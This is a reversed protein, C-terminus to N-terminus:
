LCYLCYTIDFRLFQKWASDIEMKLQEKHRQMMRINDVVQPPHYRTVYKTSNIRMWDSPVRGLNDNSVEILYQSYSVIYYVVSDCESNLCMVCVNVETGMVTTYKMGFTNLTKAFDKKLQQM